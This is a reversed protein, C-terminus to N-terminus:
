LRQLYRREMEKFKKLLDVQQKLFRNEAKVKELETAYEPGKGYSYQKGVPQELRNLEGSRYWKMWAKVQSRNRINLQDMVEKVPIGALRMEIAKMKVELPYSVRTAM